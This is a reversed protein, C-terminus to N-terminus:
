AFPGRCGFLHLTRTGGHLPNATGAASPRASANPASRGPHSALRRAPRQQATGHTTTRRNTTTPPAPRPAQPPSGPWPASECLDEGVPGFRDVATSPQNDAPVAPLGNGLGHVRRDHATTM